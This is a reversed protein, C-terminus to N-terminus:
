VSFLRSGNNMQYQAIVCVAQFADQHKHVGHRFIQALVNFKKIKANFTEHRLRARSKFNKLLKGDQPNPLALQDPFGAYGGDAIGRKGKPIKDKLGRNEFIAGDAEGCNFPGNMWVLQDGQVSIGLEYRLGGKHFKHSYYSKDISLTPHKPEWIRCDTGDVTLIFIETDADDFRDPWKIKLVKL